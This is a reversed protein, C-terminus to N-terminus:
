ESEVDEGVHRVHYKKLAERQLREKFQPTLKDVAEKESLGFYDKVSMVADWMPINEETILNNIIKNYIRKVEMHAKNPTMEFIEGLEEYTLQRKQKNSRSM